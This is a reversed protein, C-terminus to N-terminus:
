AITALDDLLAQRNEENDITDLYGRAKALQRDRELEDGCLSEARAIAEHAYARFFDDVDDHHEIVQLSRAGYRRALDAEGCLAFVRSLQWNAISAHKPGYDERQTWHWHSAMARRIMEEEESATRHEKDMLEWTSNFCTVSFWRHAATTEFEPQKSM